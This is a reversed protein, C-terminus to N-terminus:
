PDDLEFEIGDYAPMVGKPLRRSLEAYDLEHGMHTFYARKPGIAAIADLAQDVSFHAPHPDNRLAGIILIELGTLKELSGEPIGSCDTLYAMDGIRYGIIIWQAHNIEVPVIKVGGIEFEEEIVFIELQPKGGATYSGDFIYRFGSKLNEVTEPNGYCPIRMKNMFNFTRLEDIGHTHDAHDHTLVIARPILRHDKVFAIILEAQPAMGPDIIWCDGGDRLYVTYGNEVFVTDNTVHFQVVENSM